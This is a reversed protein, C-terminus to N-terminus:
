AATQGYVENWVTLVDKVTKAAAIGGSGGHEILVVFAIRPDEYPFFGNMWAHAQRPPAQATGTKAGMRGFDVKALQGTGYPSQVVQLMGRKLVKINEERVSVRQSPANVGTRQNGIKPAAILHPKVQKGNKAIMATMKLIQLPSTLLYSQGIAYSLTEGQYWKQKLRATKWGQDPVLGSSIHPLEIDPPQGLGLERACSAIQEPSM